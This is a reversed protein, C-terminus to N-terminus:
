EADKKENYRLWAELGQANLEIDMGLEELIAGVDVGPWQSAIRAAIMDRLNKDLQQPREDGPELSLAMKSWEVIQERLSQVYNQPQELAGYHTMYIREPDYSMLLELSDLLKQPNFQVPTTTPLIFREGQLQEFQYSLGFTDGSFWGKSSVDWLCYHHEAHGPTHRVQLPRGAFDLVLGDEAARVREGPVPVLEGYLEEYAAEGYVAKVGAVLRTPDIMHRAGRPHVVLEANPCLQMLEGAGGAHDLHVHTPLVYRVADLSLGLTGLAARIAEVTRGTGTEVIAVEAGEVVLYCCALGERIYRADVCYVGMGLKELAAGKMM